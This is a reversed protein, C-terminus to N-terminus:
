APEFAFEDNRGMIRSLEGLHPFEESRISQRCDWGPVEAQRHRSFGARAKDGIGHYLGAGGGSSEPRHTAASSSAGPMFEARQAPVARSKPAAM